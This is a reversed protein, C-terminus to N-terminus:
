VGDERRQGRSCYDDAFVGCDTRSCIGNKYNEWPRGGYKKCERCRVVPVADITPADKICVVADHWTVCVARDGTMDSEECRKQYLEKMQEWLADADILRPM